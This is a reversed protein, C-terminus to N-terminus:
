QALSNKEKEVFVDSFSDSGWYNRLLKQCLESAEEINLAPLTQNVYILLFNKEFFSYDPKQMNKTKRCIVDFIMESYEREVSNGMWPTGSLEKKSAIERLKALNKKPKGWKFYASDVVSGIEKAEPLSIAKLYDPNIATTVECGTQLKGDGLLFDPRERKIL